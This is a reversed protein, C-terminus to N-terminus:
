FNSKSLNETYCSKAFILHIQCNQLTQATDPFKEVIKM